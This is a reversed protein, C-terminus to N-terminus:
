LLQKDNSLPWSAEPMWNKGTPPNWPHIFGENGETNKCHTRSKAGVQYLILQSPLQSNASISL